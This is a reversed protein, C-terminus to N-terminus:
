ARRATRRWVVFFLAYGAVLAPVAALPVFGRNPGTKEARTMWSPLVDGLLLCSAVAAASTALLIALLTVNKM